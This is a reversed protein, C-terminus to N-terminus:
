WGLVVAAVHAMLAVVALFNITFVQGRLRVNDTLTQVLTHIVRGGLFIWAAAVDFATLEGRWLLFLAAFYAFLPAEFQNSLNRAIRAAGPPDGATRVFDAYAARGQRVAALRAATLAAYLTAVLAFHLLFPILFAAQLGSAGM